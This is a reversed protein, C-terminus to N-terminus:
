STIRKLTPIENVDKGLYDMEFKVSPILEHGPYKDLFIQYEKQAKEINNLVNAYIYAVMFQAHPEQVSGQYNTIVERYASIAKDFDRLDNNYIDGILYQAKPAIEDSSFDLVLYELINVADTMDKAGRTTEAQNMLWQPFHALDKRANEGIETDGYKEVINQLTNYGNSYEKLNDLYIRAIEYNATLALPHSKHNTLLSEFTQIAAQYESNKKSELGSELLQDPSKGCGSFLVASTLLIILHKKM